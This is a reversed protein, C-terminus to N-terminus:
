KENEEACNDIVRWGMERSPLDYEKVSHQDYEPCVRKEPDLRVNDGEPYDMVDADPIMGPFLAAGPMAGPFQTEGPSYFAGPVYGNELFSRDKNKDEYM